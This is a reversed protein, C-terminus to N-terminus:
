GSKEDIVSIQKLRITSDRLGIQEIKGELLLQKIHEYFTAKCCIKDSEFKTQLEKTLIEGKTLEVLVMDKISTINRTKQTYFVERLRILHEWLSFAEVLDNETATIEGEKVNDFNNIVYNYCSIVNLMRCIIELDRLIVLNRYKLETTHSKVLEKIRKEDDERVRVRDILRMKQAIATLRQSDESFDDGKAKGNFLKTNDIMFKIKNSNSALPIVVDFRSLLSEKLAVQERLETETNFFDSDPNECAIMGMNLDINITVGRKVFKIVGNDMIEKNLPSNRFKHFEPVILLGMNMQSLIGEKIEGDAQAIGQLSAETISSFVDSKVAIKNIISCIRSKGSSIDGIMLTHQAKRDIELQNLLFKPTFPSVSNLILLKWNESGVDVFTNLKYSLQTLDSEKKLLDKNEEYHRNIIKQQEEEQFLKEELEKRQLEEVDNLAKEKEAKIQSKTTKESISIAYEDMLYQCYTNYDCDKGASFLDLSIYDVGQNELSTFIKKIGKNSVKPYSEKFKQILEQM